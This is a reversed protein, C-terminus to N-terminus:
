AFAIHMDCAAFCVKPLVVDGIWEEAAAAAAQHHSRGLQQQLPDPQPGLLHREVGVEGWARDGQGQHQTKDGAALLSSNLFLRDATICLACLHAARFCLKM